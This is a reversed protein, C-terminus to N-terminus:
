SYVIAGSSTTSSQGSISFQFISRNASAVYGAFFNISDTDFLFNQGFPPTGIQSESYDFDYGLNRLEKVAMNVAVAEARDRNEVNHNHVHHIHIRYDQYEPSTLLQYTMGLSDLGGSYMALIVPQEM